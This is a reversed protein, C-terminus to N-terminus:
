NQERIWEAEEQTILNPFSLEMVNGIRKFVLWGRQSAFEALEIAKERSCDMMKVFDTEFLQPGRIGHLYGLYLAYAVSAPTPNARIRIKKTRGSLHGSKTWSSNINQAMSTITVKSFRGPEIAEIFEEMTTRPLFTGEQTTQIIKFSGRLVSDRSVSCLLALLPRAEIDRKWFYLLVRFLAIKPNLTYLETLYDASYKRTKQTRKGLCNEVEIASRYEEISSANPVAELLTALDEFMVTRRIHTSNKGFRLGFKILSDENLNFCKRSLASSKRDLFSNRIQFDRSMKAITFSM